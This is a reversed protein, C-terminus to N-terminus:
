LPLKQCPPCFLLGETFQARIACFLLAYNGPASFRFSNQRSGRGGPHKFGQSYPWNDPPSKIKLIFHGVAWSYCDQRVREPLAPEVAIGFDHTSRQSNVVLQVRNYSNQRSIKIQGFIKDAIVRHLKQAWQPDPGAIWIPASIVQLRNAM